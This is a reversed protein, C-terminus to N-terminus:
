KGELHNILVRAEEETDCAHFVNLAIKRKARLESYDQDNAFDGRITGISIQNPDSKGRLEFLRRVANKGSVILFIIENSVLYNRRAEHLWEPEQVLGYILDFEKPTIKKKVQVEITLGSNTIRKLIIDVLGREIAEPKIIGVTKQM